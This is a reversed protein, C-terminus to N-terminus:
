FDIFNMHKEKAANEVVNVHNHLNYKEKLNDYKRIFYNNSYSELIKTVIQFWVKENFTEQGRVTDHIPALFVCERLKQVNTTVYLNDPNLKPIQLINVQSDCMNSFIQLKSDKFLTKYYIEFLENRETTIDKRNCKNNIFIISPKLYSEYKNKQIMMEASLLLRIFNINLFDEQLVLVIHCVNLLMIIKQIDELESVIFDKHGRNSLVPSSDLLIVRDETIHMRIAFDDPDQTLISNVSFVEDSVNSTGAALMNLISSKGTSQMGISGIVIFDSNTEQLYDLARVNLTLSDTIIAICKMMDNHMSHSSEHTRWHPLQEKQQRSVTKPLYTKAAITFVPESKSPIDEKKKVKLLIRPQSDYNEKSSKYHTENTSPVTGRQLHTM